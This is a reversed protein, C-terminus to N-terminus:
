NREPPQITAIKQRVADLVAVQDQDLNGFGFSLFKDGETEIELRKCPHRLSGSKIVSLNQVDKLPIATEPGFRHYELVVNNDELRLKTFYQPGTRHWVTILIFLFAGVLLGCIVRILIAKPAWEGVLDNKKLSAFLLLPFLLWWIWSGIDHRTFDITQEAFVELVIVSRQQCLRLDSTQWTGAKAEFASGRSRPFPGQSIPAGSCIFQQKVLYNGTQLRCTTANRLLVAALTVTM